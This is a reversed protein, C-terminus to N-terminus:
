REEERMIADELYELRALAVILADRVNGNGETEIFRDVWDTVSEDPVQRKMPKWWIWPKGSQLAKRMEAYHQDCLRFAVEVDTSVHHQAELECYDCKPNM